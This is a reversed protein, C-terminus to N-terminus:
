KGAAVLAPRHIVHDQMGGAREAHAASPNPSRTVTCVSRRLKAVM